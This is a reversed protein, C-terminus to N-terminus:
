RRGRTCRALGGAGPVLPAPARAHLEDESFWLDLALEHKATRSALTVVVTGSRARPWARDPALALTSSGELVLEDAFRPTGRQGVKRVTV